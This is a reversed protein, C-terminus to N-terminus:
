EALNNIENQMMAYAVIGLGFVQLILYIVALNGTPQGKAAKVSDIKVGQKYAWYYGYIGCTILTFILAKVGDTGNTEGALTNTDDTLKIFWYLGYIGCTIITFIICKVIERKTIGM